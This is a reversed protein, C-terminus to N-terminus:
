RASAPPPNCAAARNGHLPIESIAKFAARAIISAATETSHAQALEIAQAAALSSTQALATMILIMAGLSLVTVPKTPM